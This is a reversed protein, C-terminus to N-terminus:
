FTVSVWNGRAWFSFSFFYCSRRSPGQRMSKGTRGKVKLLIEWLLITIFDTWGEGHPAPEEEISLRLCTLVKGYGDRGMWPGM